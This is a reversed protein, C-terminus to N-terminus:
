SWRAAAAADSGHTSNSNTTDADHPGQHNPDDHGFTKHPLEVDSSSGMLLDHEDTLVPDLAGGSRLRHEARNLKRTARRGSPAQATTGSTMYM